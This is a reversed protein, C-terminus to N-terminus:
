RSAGPDTSLRDGSRLSSGAPMELVHRARVSWAIRRPPVTAVRIVRLDRDLFAVLIEERMGFTHVSRAREFLMPVPRRGLLGRARERHSTPVEVDLAVDSSTSAQHLLYRTPTTV